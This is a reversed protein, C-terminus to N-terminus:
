KNNFHVFDAYVTVQPYNFGGIVFRRIVLGAKVKHQLFMIEERNKQMPVIVIM